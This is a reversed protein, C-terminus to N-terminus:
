PDGVKKRPMRGASKVLGNGDEIASAAAGDVEQCFYWVVHYSCEVILVVEVM